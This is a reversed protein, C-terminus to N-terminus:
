SPNTPCLQSVPHIAIENRRAQWRLSYAACMPQCSPITYRDPPEFKFPAKCLPCKHTTASPGLLKIVSVLQKETLGVDLVRAM